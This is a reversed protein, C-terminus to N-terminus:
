SLINKGNVTVGMAGQGSFTLAVQSAPQNGSLLGAYKALVAALEKPNSANRYAEQFEAAQDLEDKHSALAATTMLERAMVPSDNLAAKLEKTYPYDAPFQPQGSRDYTISAPASPIGHEALFKPFVSSVHQSLADINRQSPMMLPPLEAMPSEPSASFYKDIDIGVSGKDTDFVATSSASGASATTSTTSTTTSAATMDSRERLFLDRAAQSITVPSGAVKATEQASIRPQSNGTKAAGYLAATNGIGAVNM